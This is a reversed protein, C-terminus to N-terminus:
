YGFWTHFRESKGNDFKLYDIDAGDEKIVAIIGERTNTMELQGYGGNSPECDIIAILPLKLQEARRLIRALIEGTIM